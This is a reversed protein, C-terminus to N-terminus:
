FSILLSEKSPPQSWSCNEQDEVRSHQYHTGKKMATCVFLGGISSSMLDVGDM